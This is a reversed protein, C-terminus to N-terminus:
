SASRKLFSNIFRIDRTACNAGDITSVPTALRLSNTLFVADAATLDLPAIAAEHAILNLQSAGALIKARTIGPLIGQDLAPTILHEGKLLFLNAITACAVQGTNNLLLADDASNSVLRAAMINDLYNLTKMRASPATANRRITSTELRVTAPLKSADFDNLSVILSPKTSPAALGRATPGRTLTIRLVENTAGSRELIATVARQVDAKAYPIGLESASQGLRMLHEDLWIAKGRQVALTEFLGDGLLLGRESAELTITEVFAGNCWVTM